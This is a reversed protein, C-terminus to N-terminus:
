FGHEFHHMMWEKLYAGVQLYQTDSWEIPRPFGAARWRSLVTQYMEFDCDTKAESRVFDSDSALTQLFTLFPLRYPKQGQETQANAPPTDSHPNNGTQTNPPKMPILDVGQLSVVLTM